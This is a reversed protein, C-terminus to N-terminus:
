QPTPRSGLISSGVRIHTAGHSIASEFDNSMGASLYIAQPYASKFSAHITALKEFAQDVPVDLPAVAMLGMLDLHTSQVVSDALASLDTPAAGGRGQAGDLSVQLFVGIRHTAVKDLTQIHRIEDLSHIVNAWSAISKLKNSQIQGQFHWTGPVAVAKPAAESDRNEGYHHVDLSALIHVDSVPFTKTVAILTIEEYARASSQAAAKIQEIVGNLNSAIEEYRSTM